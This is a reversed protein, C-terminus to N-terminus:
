GDFHFIYTQSISVRDIILYKNFPYFLQFLGLIFDHLSVHLLLCCDGYSNLLVLAVSTTM